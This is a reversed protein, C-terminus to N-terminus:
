AGAATTTASAPPCDRPSRCAAGPDGLRAAGPLARGGRRARRSRRTGDAAATLAAPLDFSMSMADAAPAAEAGPDAAGEGPAAPRGLAAVLDAVAAPQGNALFISVRAGAAAAAGLEVLRVAGLAPLQLLIADDAAQIRANPSGLGRGAPRPGGARLREILRGVALVEGDALVLGAPAAATPAAEVILFPAAPRCRQDDARPRLRHARLAAARGCSPRRRGHRAAARPRADGRIWGDAEALAGKIQAELVAAARLPAVPRGDALRIEAAPERAAAARLGRAAAPRRGARVGDAPRDEIRLSVDGLSSRDRGARRGPRAASGSASM